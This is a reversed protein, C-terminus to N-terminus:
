EEDKLLILYRPHWGVNKNIALVQYSGRVYYVANWGQALPRVVGPAIEHTWRLIKLGLACKEGDELDACQEVMQCHHDSWEEVLLLDYDGILSAMAPNGVLWKSRQERARWEERIARSIDSPLGQVLRIQHTLIGDPQYDEPPSVMEFDPTLRGQEIDGIIESVQMQLEAKFILRDWKGCLSYVVERDWWQILRKAVAPRQEAPLLNKLEEAIRNEIKDVSPAGEDIRIRRLFTLRESETLALFAECGDVRDSHPFPEGAKAAGARENIVRRAEEDMAHALHARDM